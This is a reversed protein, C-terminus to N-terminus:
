DIPQMHRIQQNKSTEPGSPNTIENACDSSQYKPMDETATLPHAARLAGSARESSRSCRINEHQLRGLRLAREQRRQKAM